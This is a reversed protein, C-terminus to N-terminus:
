KFYDIRVDRDHYHYSIYVIGGDKLHLTIGFADQVQPPRDALMPDSGYGRLVITDESSMVVKMRKPAIQINNGWMLHDGDLNYLTVFYSNEYRTDPKIEIARNCGSNDVGTPVGSNFRKHDTSKFCVNTIDISPELGPDGTDINGNDAPPHGIRVAGISIPFGCGHCKRSRGAFVFEDQVRAGCHLCPTIIYGAKGEIENADFEVYCTFISPYPQCHRIGVSDFDRGRTVAIYRLFEHIEEPSSGLVHGRYHGDADLEGHMTVNTAARRNIQDCLKDKTM